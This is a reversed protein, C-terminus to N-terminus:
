LAASHENGSDNSPLIKDGRAGAFEEVSLALRVLEAVSKVRLKDMVRARHNEVTRPSISLEYAIIKNPRGAVVLNLVQRERLTLSALRAGMGEGVVDRALGTACDLHQMDLEGSGLAIVIVPLGPMLRRAQRMLEFSDADRLACVVLDFKGTRLQALVDRPTDAFAFGYGRGELFRAVAARRGNDVTAVLVHSGGAPREGLPGVDCFSETGSNVDTM